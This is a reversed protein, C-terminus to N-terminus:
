HEHMKKRKFNLRELAKKVDISPLSINRNREIKQSLELDSEIITTSQQLNSEESDKRM